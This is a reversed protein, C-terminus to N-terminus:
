ALTKKLGIGLGLLGTGLLLLSAPEPTAAAPTTLTAVTGFFCNNCPGDSQPGGGLFNMSGISGDLSPQTSDGPTFTASVVVGQLGSFTFPVTDSSPGVDSTDRIGSGTAFFTHGSGGDSTVGLELLFQGGAAITGINFTDATANGGGVGITLTAGTIASASTNNIVFIPGDQVGFGFNNGPSSCNYCVQINGVTDAKAPASLLACLGVGLLSIVLRKM